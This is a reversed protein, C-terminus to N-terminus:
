PIHWAVLSAGTTDEATQSFCSKNRLQIKLLMGFAAPGLNFFCNKDSAKCQYVPKVSLNWLAQQPYLVWPVASLTLRSVTPSTPQVRQSRSLSVVGSGTKILVKNWWCQITSSTEKCILTIHQFSPASVSRLGEHQETKLTEVMLATITCM